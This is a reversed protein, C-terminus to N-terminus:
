SVTFEISPTRVVDSPSSGRRRTTIMGSQATSTTRKPREAVQAVSEVLLELPGAFETEEAGARDTWVPGM